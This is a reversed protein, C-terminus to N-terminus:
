KDFVVDMGIKLDIANGLKLARLLGAQIPNFLKETFQLIM